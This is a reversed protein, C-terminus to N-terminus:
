RDNFDFLECVTVDDIVSFVYESVKLHEPHILYLRLHDHTEFLMRLGMHYGHKRHLKDTVNIGITVELIGPIVGKLGMFLDIMHNMIAEDTNSKCKFLCIHEIRPIDMM